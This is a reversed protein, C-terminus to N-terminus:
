GNRDAMLKSVLVGVKTSKQVGKKQYTSADLDAESQRTGLHRNTLFVLLSAVRVEVKLATKSYALVSECPVDSTSENDDL